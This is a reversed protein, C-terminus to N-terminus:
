QPAGPKLRQLLLLRRPQGQAAYLVRVRDGVRLDGIRMAKGNRRYLEVDVPVDFLADSILIQGGLDVQHVIGKMEWEQSLLTQANATTAVLGLLCVLVLVCRECQKM